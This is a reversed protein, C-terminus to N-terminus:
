KLPINKIESIFVLPIDEGVNKYLLAHSMRTVVALTQNVHDRHIVILLM